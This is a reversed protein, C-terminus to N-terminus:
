DSAAQAPFEFDVTAVQGAAVTVEKTNTGLTEQWFEVTYTGAPVDSLSYKGMEDTVAFYPHEAVIVYGSMWPHVDCTVRIVEPEQFTFTMEKKFGPQGTNIPPNKESYTHLNHLIGDSNLVRLTAGVPMLLVHPRFLCVRQDLVPDPNLSSLAKGSSINTLKVVVNKIGKNSGVVLDEKYHPEKACVQVDKTIKVKQPPPPTGAYTITGSITGGNTVTTETYGAPAATEATTEPAKKAVGQEEGGGGCAVWLAVAMFLLGAFVIRNRM